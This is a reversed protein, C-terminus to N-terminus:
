GKNGQIHKVVSNAVVVLLDYITEKVFEPSVGEILTDDLYEYTEYKIGAVDTLMHFCIEETTEPKIIISHSRGLKGFAMGLEFIVNDRPIYTLIGKITVSDDPTMMAIVYGDNKSLDTFTKELGEIITNTLPLKGEDSWTEASYDSGKQKFRENLLKKMAEAYELGESSSIIFINKSM